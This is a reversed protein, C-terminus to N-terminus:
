CTFLTFAMSSQPSTQTHKVTFKPKLRKFVFNIYDFHVLGISIKYIYLLINITLIFVNRKYIHQHTKVTSSFVKEQSCAHLILYSIRQQVHLRKKQMRQKSDSDIPCAQAGKLQLQQCEMVAVRLMLQSFQDTSIDLNM